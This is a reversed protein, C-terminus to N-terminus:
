SSERPHPPLAPFDEPAIGRIRTTTRGVRLTATASAIDQTANLSETQPQTKLWDGFIRIPLALSLEPTEVRAPVSLAATTNLDTATLIVADKTTGVLVHHLIPSVSHSKVTRLLELAERLAGLENITFWGPVKTTKERTPHRKASGSGM